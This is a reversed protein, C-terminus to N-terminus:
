EYESDSSGIMSNRDEILAQNAKDQDKTKNLLDYFNEFRVKASMILEDSAGGMEMAKDYNDQAKDLLRLNETISAEAEFLVALNYHFNMDREGKYKNMLKIAGKYNKRKAYEEVYALESPFSKFERLQNTKLPSIDSIFDKVVKEVAESTLQNQTPLRSLDKSQRNKRESYSKALFEETGRALVFVVDLYLSVKNGEQKYDYSQVKMNLAVGEDGGLPDLAIFNTQTVKTKVSDILMSALAKTGGQIEPNIWLALYANESIFEDKTEIKSLKAAEKPATYSPIVIKPGAGCSALMLAVGTLVVIKMGNKM